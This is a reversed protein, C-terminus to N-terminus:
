GDRATPGEGAKQLNVRAHLGDTIALIDSSDCTYGRVPWSGVGPAEAALACTALHEDLAARLAATLEVVWRDAAARECLLRRTRVVAGGITVGAAAAAGVVAGGAPLVESLLRATTLTTGTGFGAGILWTLRNELAATRPVPVDIDVAAPPVALGAGGFDFGVGDQLERALAAARGAARRTFAATQGRSLSGADDRLEARLAACRTRIRGALAVRAQRLRTRGLARNQAATSTGPGHQRAWLRLLGRAMDRGCAAHTPTVPGKAYYTWRAAQRALDATGAADTGIAAIPMGAGRLVDAAARMRAWALDDGTLMEALQGSYPGAALEALTAVAESVRTFHAVAPCDPKKEM